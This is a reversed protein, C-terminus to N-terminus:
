GILLLIKKTWHGNEICTLSPIPKSKLISAVDVKMAGFDRNRLQPNLDFDRTYSRSEMVMPIGNFTAVDFVIDAHQQTPFWHQSDVREYM